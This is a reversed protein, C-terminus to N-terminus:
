NQQLSMSKLIGRLEHIFALPQDLFVHHYAEPICRLLEPKIIEAVIEVADEPFLRSKEGYIFGVPCPANEVMSAADPLEVSTDEQLKSFLAQDLKFYYGEEDRALSHKAIYDVIFKNKCPQPPRLRFRKVAKELTEYYRIHSRPTPPAIRKGRHRPLNSDILVVGSFIEGYLHAAVRTMSGGFSHGIITPLQLSADQCVAVIEKSFLNATYSERHESDGAGSLDMALVEYHDLFAPAIFDWWHSHAGYGHVFLLEPLRTAVPKESRVWRRYSVMAGDVIVTHKTSAITTFRQFQEQLQEQSQLQLDQELDPSAM